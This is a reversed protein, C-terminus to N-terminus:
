WRQVGAPKPDTADNEASTAASDAVSIAPLVALDVAGPLMTTGDRNIPGLRGSGGTGEPAIIVSLLTFPIV